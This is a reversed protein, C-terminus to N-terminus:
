EEKNDDNNNPIDKVVGGILKGFDIANKSTIVAKGTEKELTERAVKM